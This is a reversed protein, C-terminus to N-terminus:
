LDYWIRNLATCHGCVWFESMTDGRHQPQPFNRFACLGSAQLEHSGDGSTVRALDRVHSHAGSGARIVTKAGTSLTLSVQPTKMQTRRIQLSTKFIWWTDRHFPWIFSSCIFTHQGWLPRKGNKYVNYVLASEVFSLTVQKQVHRSNRKRVSDSSLTSRRLYLIKRNIGLTLIVTVGVSTKVDHSTRCCMKINPGTFHGVGAQGTWRQVRECKRQKRLVVRVSGWLGGLHGRVVPLTGVRLGWLRGTRWGFCARWQLPVTGRLALFEEIYNRGPALHCGSLCPIIVVLLSQVKTKDSM